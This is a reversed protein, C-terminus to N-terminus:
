SRGGAGGRMGVRNFDRRLGDVQNKVDNLQSKTDQVNGDIREIVEDHVEKDVKVEELRTLRRGHDRVSQVYMGVTVATGLAQIIIAAVALTTPDM